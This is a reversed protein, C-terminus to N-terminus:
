LFMSWVKKQELLKKREREYEIDINYFKKENDTLSRISLSKHNVSDM